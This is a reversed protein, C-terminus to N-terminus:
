ELPVVAVADMEMLYDPHALGSVFAMTIIPPNKIDKMAEQFVKYGKEISQGEVVYLHWKIVHNLSAGGAALATQLNALVQRAQAEMDGKGVIQGDKNIADQGGVYVTKFRGETVVLQSFAPNKHMGPPNIFKIKNSHAMHAQDKKDPNNCGAGIALMLFAAAAYVTKM